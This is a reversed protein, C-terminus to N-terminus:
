IKALSFVLVSMLMHKSAEPVYIGRMFGMSPFFVGVCAEFTIFGAYVMPLNMPVVFPPMLALASM